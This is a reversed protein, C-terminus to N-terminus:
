QVDVAEGGAFVVIITEVLGADLKGTENLGAYGLPQNRRETDLKTIAADPAAAVAAQFIANTASLEPRTVQNAVFVLNTPAIGASGFTRPGTSVLVDGPQVDGEFRVSGAGTYGGLVAIAALAPLVILFLKKM